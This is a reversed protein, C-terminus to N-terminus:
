HKLFGKNFITERASLKADAKSKVLFSVFGSLAEDFARDSRDNSLLRTKPHSIEATFDTYLLPAACRTACAALVSSVAIHHMNGNVHLTKKGSEDRRVTRDATVRRSARRELCPRSIEEHGHLGFTMRASEPEM